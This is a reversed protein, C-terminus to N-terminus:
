RCQIYQDMRDGDTIFLYKQGLVYIRSQGQEDGLVNSTTTLRWAKPSGAIKNASTVTEVDEYNTRVTGAVEFRLDNEAEQSTACDYPVPNWTGQLEEPFSARPTTPSALGPAAAPLLMLPLLLAPLRM